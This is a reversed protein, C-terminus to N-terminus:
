WRIPFIRHLYHSSTQAEGRRLTKFLYEETEAFLNVLIEINTKHSRTLEVEMYITYSIGYNLSYHSYAIGRSISFEIIYIGFPILISSNKILNEARPKFRHDQVFWGFDGDGMDYVSSAFKRILNRFWMKSVKSLLLFKIRKSLSWRTTSDSNEFSWTDSEFNDPIKEYSNLDNERFHDHLVEARRGFIKM